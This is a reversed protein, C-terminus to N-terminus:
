KLPKVKKFERQKIYHETMAASSHGALSQADLGLGKADTLAKARIDHFTFRNGGQEAWKVQVRHWMAKFGSDSYPLGQRTCFLYLGRIPRKLAKARAVVDTLGPSWEYLQKAGTKNQKVWIGEDTIQELKLTLIDGKRLATIYAFDMVTAILEGAISKVGEFEADMIYRDRGKEKHKAVGICPNSNVAGWRMGYSFIHSLLSIERNARVTSKQGRTDLYKAIHTPLVARAQFKAFVKKLNEAEMKNGQYTSAAKRPAIEIMYRTILEGVSGKIPKEQNPPIPTEGELEAWKSLALAKDESLRIWKKDRGVFYYAGHKVHMHPPLDLNTQRRRGM